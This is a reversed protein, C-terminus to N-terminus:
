LLEEQTPSPNTSLPSTTSASTNTYRTNYPPHSITQTIMDRMITAMVQTTTIKM